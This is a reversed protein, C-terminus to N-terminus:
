SRREANGLAGHYGSHTLIHKRHSFIPRAAPSLPRWPPRIQRTLSESVSVEQSMKTKSRKSAKFSTIFGCHTFKRCKLGVLAGSQVPDWQCVPLSISAFTQVSNWGWMLHKLEGFIQKYASIHLNFHFLFLTTYFYLWTSHSHVAARVVADCKVGPTVFSVFSERLSKYDCKLPFM